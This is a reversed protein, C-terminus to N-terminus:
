VITQRILTGTGFEREQRPIAVAPGSAHARDLPPWPL